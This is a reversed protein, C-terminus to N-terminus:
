LINGKKLITKSILGLGIAFIIGGIFTLLVNVITSDLPSILSVMMFMIMGVSLSLIISLWTKQKGIVCMIIFISVFLGMLFSKSLICMIVNSITFGITEFSLKAIAGGLLAGIFYALIFIIGSVYGIATKSIIYDTKDARVTFLNKSFGSRFEESIYISMFVASAFYMMDINCMKELANVEGYPYASGGNSLPNIAQFVNFYMQPTIVVEGTVRDISESGATMTTMVLILVPIMFAIGIMLYFLPTKLLKKFDLKLMSMLRNSFTFRKFKKENM